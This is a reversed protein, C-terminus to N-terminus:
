HLYDVVCKMHQFYWKVLVKHSFQRSPHSTVQTAIINFLHMGAITYKPLDLIWLKEFSCSLHMLDISSANLVCPTSEAVDSRDLYM